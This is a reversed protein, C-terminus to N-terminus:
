MMAKPADTIIGIIKVIIPMHIPIFNLLASFDPSKTPTPKTPSPTTVAKNVFLKSLGKFDM